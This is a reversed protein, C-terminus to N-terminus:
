TKYICGQLQLGVTGDVAEGFLIGFIEDEYPKLPFYSM